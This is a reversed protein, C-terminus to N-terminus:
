LKRAEEATLFKWPLPVLGPVCAMYRRYIDGHSAVLKREEIKSGLVFYFTIALASVLTAANMDRTWILVLGFFYWPHRVYRHFPSLAFVESGDATSAAERLQRLGLFADMDYHRASALFGVVAALAVGNALWAAAGTWRWLWGGDIGYSLWLIPLLAIVAFVNYSLRYYRVAGPWRREAWAKVPLAALASHLLAYAIWACALGLLKM